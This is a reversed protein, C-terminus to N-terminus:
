TCTKDVIYKKIAPEKELVAAVFGVPLKTTVASNAQDFRVSEKTFWQCQMGALNGALGTLKAHSAEDRKFHITCTQMPGQHKQQCLESEVAAVSALAFLPARFQM